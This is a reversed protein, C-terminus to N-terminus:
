KFHEILEELSAKHSPIISNCFEIEQGNYRDKCTCLLFTGKPKYSGQDSWSANTETVFWQMYDSDDRLAAIALFLEENTGCDISKKNNKLYFNLAQEKTNINMFQDTEDFYGVGHISSTPSYTDLWNADKFDCCICIKYGLTKLKERLEKTNKRIFCDQTFM